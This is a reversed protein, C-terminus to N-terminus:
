GLHAKRILEAVERERGPGRAMLEAYVLLPHALPVDHAGVGHRGFAPAPATMMTIPGERDPLWNMHKPVAYGEPPVIMMLEAARYYDTMYEAATPGTLAWGQPPRALLAAIEQHIDQKARYRGHILAPRLRKAYAEVWPGIAAKRDEFQWTRPGTKRLLGAARWHAVANTVTGLAVGARAAIQRYPLTEAEPDTLLIFGVQMLHATGFPDGTIKPQKEPRNGRIRIVVQDGLRLDANGCADLYGFGARTVDDGLKPPVYDAFLIMKPVGAETLPARAHQVYAEMQALAARNPGRKMEFPARVKGAKLKFTIEGDVRGWPTQIGKGHIEFRGRGVLEELLDAFRDM